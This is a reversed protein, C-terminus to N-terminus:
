EADEQNGLLEYSREESEEADAEEEPEDFGEADAPLPAIEDAELAVQEAAQTRKRAAEIAAEAEARRQTVETLVVTMKKIAQGYLNLAQEYSTRSYAADADICFQRAANFDAKRAVDAKIARAQKEVDVYSLRETDARSKFSADLISRYSLLLDESAALLEAPTAGNEAMERLAMAKDCAVDFVAPNDADFGLSVIRNFEADALAANELAKYMRIADKAAAKLAESDGDADYTAFANNCATDAATFEEPFLVDAKAAIAAQRAATVKEILANKEDETFTVVPVSEEVAPAQEAASAAPQEAPAEVVPAEVVPTEEPVEEPASKCSALLAVLLMGSLARFYRKKM